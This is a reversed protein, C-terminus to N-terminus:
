CLYQPDAQGGPRALVLRAGVMLPWFFEWVSVDFSFPTKQLVADASSLNFASQMWLLRNTIAQHTNMAAKPQGTSGSTYIVYALNLPEVTPPPNASSFSQIESGHQDLAIVPLATGSLAAAFRERLSSLTLLLSAGADKLMFSLREPPYDPELPLYAAGAKLIALLAIVMESSRPLSLAVIADHGIGHASILHALQNAEANLQAYSLETEAFILAPADPTLDVQREFLQPISFHRLPHLRHTDNWLQLQLQREAQSLLSLASLPLEASASIQQLLHSFHGCLQEITLPEFLDTNYEFWGELRDGVEHLVLSLDFITTEETRGFPTMTLGPLRLLGEPANQLVLMVQFLSNRSLDREPQLEESWSRM